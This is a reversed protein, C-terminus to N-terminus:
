FISFILAIAVAFVSITSRKLLLSKALRKFRGGQCVQEVFSSECAKPM